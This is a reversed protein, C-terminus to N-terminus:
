SWQSRLHGEQMTPVFGRQAQGRGHGLGTGGQEAMSDLLGLRAKGQVMNFDMPEM